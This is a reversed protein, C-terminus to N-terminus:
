HLRDLPMRLFRSVSISTSLASILIGIAPLGIAIYLYYPGGFFNLGVEELSDRLVYLIGALIGLALIASSLGWWVSQIVYPRRIFGATAGVLQMSRIVFRKSFIALNITNNILAVVILLFLLCIVGLWLTISGINENMKAILDPHYVVERVEPYGGLQGVVHEVSDLPTHTHQLHIELSAPLPNEGIFAVFDEGLREVERRAAEDKSIYDVSLSYPKSEVVKKVRLVDTESLDNEMMVLLSIDEKYKRGVTDSVSYLVGLIGLMVLVLTIGVITGVTTTARSRSTIRESKSAM